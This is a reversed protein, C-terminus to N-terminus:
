FLIEIEKNDGVCGGCIVVLLIVIIFVCNEMKYCFDGFYVIKIGESM